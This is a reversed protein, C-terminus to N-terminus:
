QDVPSGKVWYSGNYHSSKSMNDEAYMPQLNELAWCEKIDDKNLSGDDNVFKFSACPKIHDIHWVNGMNDWSLKEKEPLSNQEFLSELRSRLEEVNYGLLDFTYFDKSLKNRKLHDRIQSRLRKKLVFDPDTAQRIARNKRGRQLTKDKNAYYYKSHTKKYHEKNEQYHKKGMISDYNTDKYYKQQHEKCCFIQNHKKPIFHQKCYKCERQKYQKRQKKDNHKKNNQKRLINKCEDSCTKQSGNIPKYKNGCIVCIRDITLNNPRKLNQRRSKAKNKCQKCCYVQNHVNPVFEQGCENCIKVM